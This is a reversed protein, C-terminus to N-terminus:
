RARRGRLRNWLARLQRAWAYWNAASSGVAAIAEKEDQGTFRTRLRALAVRDMDRFRRFLARRISGSSEGATWATALDVVYASGDEAMLVDRHHLDALAIGRAHLADLIAAVRDFFTPHLSAAAFFSSLPAAEIWRTALSFPGLRGFFEPLGPIGAAALYAVSERRTFFRGITNRLLFPRAGYDKVAIEVGQIRYVRVDAKSLNRGPLNRIPATRQLQDLDFVVLRRATSSKVNSQSLM